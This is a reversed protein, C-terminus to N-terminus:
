TMASKLSYTNGFKSLIAIPTVALPPLNKSSISSFRSASPFVLTLRSLAASWDKFVCKSLPKNGAFKISCLNSFSSVVTLRNTFSLSRRKTIAPKIKCSKSFNGSAGSSHRLNGKSSCRLIISSFTLCNPSSLNILGSLGSM